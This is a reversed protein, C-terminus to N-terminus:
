INSGLAGQPVLNDWAQGLCAVRPAGQGNQHRLPALQGRFRVSNAFFFWSWRAKLATGVALPGGGRGPYQGEVCVRLM